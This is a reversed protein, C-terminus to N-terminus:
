IFLLFSLLLCYGIREDENGAYTIEGIPFFSTERTTAASRPSVIVTTQQMFAIPFKIGGAM